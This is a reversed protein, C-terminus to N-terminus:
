EPYNRLRGDMRGRGAEHFALHPMGADGPRSSVIGDCRMHESGHTTEELAADVDYGVALALEAAQSVARASGIRPTVAVLTGVIEDVTAGAALGAEVDAQMSPPSAGLALLAALRVLAHTKPDLESVSLNSQNSAFVSGIFREDHVAYCRLKREHGAM